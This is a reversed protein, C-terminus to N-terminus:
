DVLNVFDEPDLVKGSVPIPDTGAIFSKPKLFVSSYDQTLNLIQKRIEEASDSKM